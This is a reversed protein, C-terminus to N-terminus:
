GYGKEIHEQIINSVQEIIKKRFKEKKPKEGVEYYLRLMIDKQVIELIENVSYADSSGYM